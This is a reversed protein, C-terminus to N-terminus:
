KVTSPATANFGAGTAGSGRHAQAGPGSELHKKFLGQIRINKERFELSTLTSSFCVEQFITRKGM